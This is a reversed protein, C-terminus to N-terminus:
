NRHYMDRKISSDIKFWRYHLLTQSTKQDFEVHYYRKDKTRKDKTRKHEPGGFRECINVGARAANQDL